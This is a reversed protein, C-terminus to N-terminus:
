PIISRPKLPKHTAQTSLVRIQFSNSSFGSSNWDTFKQVMTMHGHIQHTATFSWYRASKYQVLDLM